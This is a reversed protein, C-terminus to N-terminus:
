ENSNSGPIAAAGSLIVGFFTELGIKKIIALVAPLGVAGVAIIGLGVTLYGLFNNWEFSDNAESPNESYVPMLHIVGPINPGLTIYLRGYVVTDMGELDGTVHAPVVTPNELIITAQTPEIEISYTVVKGILDGSTKIKGIAAALNEKEVELSIGAKAASDMIETAIGSSSAYLNIVEADSNLKKTLSIEKEVKVNPSLSRFVVVKHNFFELDATILDGGIISNRPIKTKNKTGTGQFMGIDNCFDIIKESQEKTLDPPDLPPADDGGSSFPNDLKSVGRDRNSCVNKDISIEGDGTGITYEKIQDFSWNKPLAYGINGSFGSALDGVFSTVALGENSVRSCINRAGYVGIKYGKPNYKNFAKKLARFYPLINSTVQDDVADFDVAFYIITGKPFGYELAAIVGARGDKQGQSANFYSIANGSTQYIPFLRLGNNFIVKAEHEKLKKWEGGAIYRGVIEYGNARLTKARADTVETSCDCATGPRDRDGHSLMLSMWTQKGCYGDATLMCFSQFNKLAALTGNGFVGTFGTPDFTNCYLAYQMIKVFPTNKSGPALTPLAAQTAPGFTGNPEAIGEEVQIAYILAKNTDKNYRGDTPRLGIWKHYDRNLNMQIERIKPDGNPVLVYADMTLLAKFIMPNAIGNVNSGTLGASAQFRKIGAETEDGFIVENYGPSFGKCWMAGQLIRVLRITKDNPNLDKQLTPCAAETAPGFTGNPTSIGIEIQLARILGRITAWGTFGDEELTIWNSNSSYTLNLYEQTRKVMEDMRKM